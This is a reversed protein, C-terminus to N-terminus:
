EEITTKGIFYYTKLQKDQKKIKKSKEKIKRIFTKKSPFKIKKIKM